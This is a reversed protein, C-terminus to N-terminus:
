REYRLAAFEKSRPGSAIPSSTSRAWVRDIPQKEDGFSLDFTSRLEIKGRETLRLARSERVNSLWRLEMMRRNLAVGLSGALHHRRESWDLCRRAVPRTSMATIEIGFQRFWVEGTRTVKYMAEDDHLLGKACLAETIAVGLHGALHGYCTRAFRLRRTSERQTNTLPEFPRAVLSLSELLAAVRSDRLRYYHHRGHIEVSLLNGKFLKDLHNSATQPSIRALRALEGAPLPCGSALASLILARSSDGILAATSAIDPDPGHMARRM